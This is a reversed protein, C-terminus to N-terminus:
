FTDEWCPLVMARLLGYYYMKQKAGLPSLCLLKWWVLHSGTDLEMQIPVGNVGVHVNLPANCTASGHNILVMPITEGTSPMTEDTSASVHHSNERKKTLCVQELHGRKHCYSCEAAKNQM